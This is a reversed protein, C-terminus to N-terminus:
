DIELSDYFRVEDGLWDMQSPDHIDGDPLEYGSEESNWQGTVDEGGLYNKIFVFQPFTDLDKRRTLTRVHLQRHCGANGEQLRAYAIEVRAISANFSTGTRVEGDEFTAQFGFKYPVYM